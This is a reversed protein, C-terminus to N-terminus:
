YQTQGLEAIAPDVSLTLLFDEDGEILQDNILEVDLEAATVGPEIIMVGSHKKFDVGAQATGGVTAFIIPVRDEAPRSLRIVFSLSGDDEGAVRPGVDISLPGAAIERIGDDRELVKVEFDKARQESSSPVEEIGEIRDRAVRIVKDGVELEYSLENTSAAKKDLWDQAPQFRRWGPLDARLDVDQWKPHRVPEIFKDFNDFFREVVAKVKAYREHGQPWNYVALVEPVAITEIATGSEILQPYDQDTLQSPLYTEGLDSNLPVPLFHLGNGPKIQRMSDAPKGTVVFAAAIEGDRVKEIAVDREFHVPMVEIGLSNFVNEATIFSGRGKVDYSVVQGDLDQITQIRRGAILHLESSYLKTVYRVRNEINSHIDKRQVYSLVDAQLISLDIGRLYLVDAIGQLSGH